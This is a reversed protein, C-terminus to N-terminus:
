AGHPEEKNGMDIGMYIPTNRKLQDFAITRMDELHAQTAKLHGATGVDSSRFGLDHLQDYLKQAADNSIDFLPKTEKFIDESSIDRMTMDTIIGAPQGRDDVVDAFFSVQKLRPTSHFAFLEINLNAVGNIM